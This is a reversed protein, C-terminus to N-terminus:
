GVHCPLQYTGAREEEYSVIPLSLIFSATILVNTLLLESCKKM